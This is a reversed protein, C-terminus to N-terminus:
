SSFAKVDGYAVSNGSALDLKLSGNSNSVAVVQDRVQTTVAVPAAGRNAVVRFTVGSPDTPPKAPAWTFAHRGSTEAGLDITDIVRGASSLVEIKATDAPGALEYSASATGTTEDLKLANGDVVVGQGVLQVGQLAQMQTFQGSMAQISSNVKDIGAVTNIQAMQSTVQANDMPSLPDQNQMQAVLLKLFRDASAETTTQSNANGSLQSYLSASSAATSGTTAATTTTSM